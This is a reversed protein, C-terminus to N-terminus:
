VLHVFVFIDLQADPRNKNFILHFPNVPFVAYEIIIISIILVVSYGAPLFRLSTKLM